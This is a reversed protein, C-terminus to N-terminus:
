DRPRTSATRPLPSTWPMQISASSCFEPQWRKVSRQSSPVRRKWRGYKSSATRWPVPRKRSLNPQRRLTAAEIIAFGAVPFDSKLYQGKRVDAGRADHNRVQVPKDAIAMEAGREVLLADHAHAAAQKDEEPREYGARDGYGITLFKPMTSAGLMWLRTQPLARWRSFCRNRVRQETTLEM